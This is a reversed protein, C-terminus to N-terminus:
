CFKVPNVPHPCPPAGSSRAPLDTVEEMAALSSARQLNVAQTMRQAFAGTEVSLGPKYIEASRVECDSIRLELNVEEAGRRSSVGWDIM